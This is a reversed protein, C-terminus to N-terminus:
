CVVHDVYRIAPGLVRDLALFRIARLNAHDIRLIKASAFLLDAREV